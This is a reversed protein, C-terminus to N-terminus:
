MCDLEICFILIGQYCNILVPTLGSEKLANKYQGATADNGPWDCEVFKFGAAAAAKCRVLISPGEENFLFSLNAVAKM